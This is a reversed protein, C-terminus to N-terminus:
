GVCARSVTLNSESIMQLMGDVGPGANSVGPLERPDYVMSGWLGIRTKQVCKTRVSVCGLFSKPRDRM